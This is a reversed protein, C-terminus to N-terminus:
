ELWTLGIRQSSSKRQSHLVQKNWLKAIDLANENTASLEGLLGEITANFVEVEERTATSWFDIPASVVWSFFLPQMNRAMIGDMEWIKTRSLLNSSENLDRPPSYLCGMARSEVTTSENRKISMDAHLWASTNSRGGKKDPEEM